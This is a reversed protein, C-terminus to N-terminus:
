SRSSRRGEARSWARWAWAVLLCLAFLIFMAVASGLLSGFTWLESDCVALPDNRFQWCPSGPGVSLWWALAPYALALACLLVLFLGIALRLVPSFGTPAGM